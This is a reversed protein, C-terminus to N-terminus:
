QCQGVPREIREETGEGRGGECTRDTGAQQGASGREKRADSSM